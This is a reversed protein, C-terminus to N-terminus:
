EGTELSKLEDELKWQTDTHNREKAEEIRRKLEKIKDKNDGLSKLYSELNARQNYGLSPNKLIEKCKEIERLKSKNNM